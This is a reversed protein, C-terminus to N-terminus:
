TKCAELLVAQSAKQHILNQRSRLLAVACSPSQALSPGFDNKPTWNRGDVEFGRHSRQPTTPSFVDLLGANFSFRTQKMLQGHIIKTNRM